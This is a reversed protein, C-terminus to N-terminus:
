YVVRRFGCGGLHLVVLRLLVPLQFRRDRVLVGTVFINEGVVVQNLRIPGTAVADGNLYLTATIDQLTVAVHIWQNAPLSNSELIQTPEDGTIRTALRLAGDASSPTLMFYENTDVGFDFIRQWADGGNWYVWTAITIDRTAAAATPLTIQGTAGDLEIARGIVGNTYTAGGNTAGHLNNGSRDDANEEFPYHAILTPEVFPDMIEWRQDLDGDYSWTAVNAGAADGMARLAQSGSHHPSIRWSGDGVGVLVFKQISDARYDYLILNTGDTGGFGACDFGRAGAQNTRISYLGEEASEINWLQEDGGGWEGLSINAINQPGEAQLTLGNARNMIRLLVGSTADNDSVM